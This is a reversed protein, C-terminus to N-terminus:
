HYTCSVNQSFLLGVVLLLNIVACYRSAALDELIGLPELIFALFSYLPKQAAIGSVASDEFTCSFVFDPSNPFRLTERFTSLRTSALKVAEM